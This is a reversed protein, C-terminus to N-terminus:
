DRFYAESQDSHNYRTHLSYIILTQSDLTTLALLLLVTRQQVSLCHVMICSKVTSYLLRRVVRAVVVSCDNYSGFLLLLLCSNYMVEGVLFAVTMRGLCCGCCCLFQQEVKFLLLLLLLLWSCSMLFLSSLMLFLM